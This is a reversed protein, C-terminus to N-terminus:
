LDVKAQLVTLALRTFKFDGDQEDTETEIEADGSLTLFYDLGAGIALRDVVKYFYDAGIDLGTVEFTDTLDDEDTSENTFRALWAHAEIVDRDTKRRYQVLPGIQMTEDKTETDTTAGGDVSVEVESKSNEIGLALGVYINSAVAYGGRILGSKSDGSADVELGLALKGAYIDLAFIPSVTELSTDSTEVEGDDLDAEGEVKTSILLPLTLEVETAMALSPTAAACILLCHRPFLSRRMIAKRNKELTLWPLAM